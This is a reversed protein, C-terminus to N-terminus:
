RSQWLARRIERSRQKSAAGQAPGVFQAPFRRRLAVYARLGFRVVRHPLLGLSERWVASGGLRRAQRMRFPVWTELRFWLRAITLDGHSLAYTRMTATYSNWSAYQMRPALLGEEIARYFMPTGPFPTMITAACQADIERAYDITRQLSDWDEEPAGVVFSGYVAIGMRRCLAIRERLGENIRVKQGISELCSADNSEIGTLITRIGARHLWLLDDEDCMELRLEATAALAIGSAAIAQCLARMQRKDFGFNPDRFRVHSIGYEDRLHRLESVVRDPSNPRFARGEHVMYPCMTCGIPCGRSAQVQVSCDSAKGTGSYRGLDLLHWAPRPLDALNRVRVWNEFQRVMGPSFVTQADPGTWQDPAVVGPVSRWQDGDARLMAGVVAEPEGFVVADIGQAEDIWHPLTTMIASGVLFVRARPLRQKLARAFELDHLLTPMALAVGVWPSPDGAASRLIRRAVHDTADAGTWGELGTDILAARAGAQEAVSLAYLLDMHPLTRGAAAEWGPQLVDRLRDPWRKPLAVGIGASQSRQLFVGPPDPPIVLTLSCM